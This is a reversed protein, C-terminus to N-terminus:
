RSMHQPAQAKGKSKIPSCHRGLSEGEGASILKDIPKFWIIIARASNGCSQFLKKSSLPGCLYCVHKASLHQLESTKNWSKASIVGGGGRMRWEEQGEETNLLTWIDHSNIVLRLINEENSEDRNMDAAWPYFPLSSLNLWTHTLSLLPNINLFDNYTLLCCAVPDTEALWVSFQAMWLVYQIVCLSMAAVSTGGACVCVCVLQVACTPCARVFLGYVNMQAHVDVCAWVSEKERLCLKAEMSKREQSIILEANWGSLNLSTKQLSFKLPLSDSLM